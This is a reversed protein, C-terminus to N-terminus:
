RVTVITPAADYYHPVPDDATLRLSGLPSRGAARRIMREETRTLYVGSSSSTSYGYGAHTESTYGLPNALGRQIAQVVIPVISGPVSGDVASWGAAKTGAVDHVLESADAILVTALAIDATNLNMVRETVQEITVLPARNNTFALTATPVVEFTETGNVPSGLYTGNWETSWEESLTADAPIPYLYVYTGVAPNSTPGIPGAVIVGLENRVTATIDAIAVPIGASKFVVDLPADTGQAFRTM